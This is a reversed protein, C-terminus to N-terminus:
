KCLLSEKKSPDRRVTTNYYDRCANSCYTKGKRVKFYSRCRKLPCQDLLEKKLAGENLLRMMILAHFENSDPFAPLTSTLEWCFQKKKIDWEPTFFITLDAGAERVQKYIRDTVGYRYIHRIWKHAPEHGKNAEELILAILQKPPAIWGLVVDEPNKVQHVPINSM